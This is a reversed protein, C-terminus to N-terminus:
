RFSQGCLNQYTEEGLMALHYTHAAFYAMKQPEYREREIEREGIFAM